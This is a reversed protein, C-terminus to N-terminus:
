SECRMDSRSWFALIMLAWVKVASTEGARWHRLLEHVSETRLVGADALVEIVEVHNRLPGRLLRELPMDFGRKRRRSVGTLWDDDLATVFKPKGARPVRPLHALATYAFESDVFPFRMEVSNAMAFADGDRLLTYRLYKEIELVALQRSAAGSFLSCLPWTETSLGPASEGTLAIVESPSFVSRATIHFSELSGAQQFVALRERQAANLRTARALREVLPEPLSALTRAPALLRFTRYGGLVEDGGTGALVVKFGADHVARSVAFVNFGDLSPLDLAEIYAEFLALDDFDLKITQHPHGYRASTQRAVSPEWDDDGRDVTFCALERGLQSAQFAIATSDVGGSLLLALPVDGALHAQVSECFAEALGSLPRDEPAVEGDPVTAFTGGRLRQGDFLLWDGPPVEKVGLDDPEGLSGTRLYSAALAPTIGKTILPRASSAFRMIDGSCRYYLPKMGFRDRALLLQHRRPQWWSLAFMGRLKPLAEAGWQDLAAALVETDGTTTFSRGQGQLELRLVEANYLEGNWALVGDGHSFPQGSADSLDQIALRTHVITATGDDYTDNGDPGRSAIARRLVDIAGPPAGVTGALGCM